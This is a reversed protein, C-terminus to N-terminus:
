SLIRRQFHSVFVNDQHKRDYLMWVPERDVSKNQCEEHRASFCCIGMEYDKTQGSRPKFGHDVVSSTLMRVM